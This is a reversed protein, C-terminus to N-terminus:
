KKIFIQTFYNMGQRNQEISIGVHTYTENEIIARHDENKLIANIAGTASSFGVVVIEGTWKANTLGMSSEQQKTFGDHNMEYNTITHSSQTLAVSSIMNLTELAQMGLSNRYENILDIIELEMTAYETKIENFYIGEDDSSCSNFVTFIFAFLVLKIKLPKM